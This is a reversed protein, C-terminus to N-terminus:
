VLFPVCSKKQKPRSYGVYKFIEGGAYVVEWAGGLSDLPLISQTTDNEQKISIEEIINIMPPFLRKWTKKHYSQGPLGPSSQAEIFWVDLDADIIFDCGYLGFNNQEKHTKRVKEVTGPEFAASFHGLAEKIQNRVHTVPDDIGRSQFMTKQRSHHERIREWLHENTVAQQTGRFKSNTLHQGTTKWDSENYQKAGARVYGEGFLVIMPDISAVLFFMRLDFKEGQTWTLENCVYQQVIFTHNTDEQATRVLGKLKESRPPIMTVGKGNNVNVDKLVWPHNMGDGEELLKMFNDRDNPDKSIRYTSPLFWLDNGTRHSYERFGELFKDKSEWRLSYDPIRGYRQFPLLHKADMDTALIQMRFYIHANKVSKVNKWGLQLFYKTILKSGRGRAVFRRRAHSPVPSYGEQALSGVVFASEVSTPVQLSSSVDQRDTQQIPSLMESEHLIYTYRHLLFFGLLLLTLSLAGIARGRGARTTTNVYLCPGRRQRNPSVIKSRM